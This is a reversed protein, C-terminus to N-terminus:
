TREDGAALSKLCMESRRCPCVCICGYLVHQCKQLAELPVTSCVGTRQLVESVAGFLVMRAEERAADM